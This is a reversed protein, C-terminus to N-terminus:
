CFDSKEIKETIKNYVREIMWPESSMLGIDDTSIWKVGSNEDSKIRVPAKEDATILFTINYHIHSPVYKGNKMHGAVPLIELSLIDPFVKEPTTGTEERAEKLAVTALDQEGDAHGGVWSWSDYIKHYCFLVKTLEKNMIWSSVTFHGKENSRLFCDPENKLVGLMIERDKEEQENVPSYAKILNIIDM